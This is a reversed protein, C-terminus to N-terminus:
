GGARAPPYDVQAIRSPSGALGFGAPNAGSAILDDATWVPIQRRSAKRIGMLTPYRPQNIDKIVAIIAPLHGAVVERRGELLREVTIRHADFDIERIEFVFTLAPLGLHRAVSPGVSGTTGDTSQKGFMIIDVEDLKRIAQALTYATAWADAGEFREDSLLIAEDVGM